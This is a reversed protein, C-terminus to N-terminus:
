FYKVGQLWIRNSADADATAQERGIKWACDLRLAFDPTRTWLLGVGAGTLSRRNSDGAGAWPTHNIIVSGYDYFGTLYVNDQPTSMGPLRWRLEGTLKCGEDGAAEGQPFARVGDAGGLFLKESSDLNKDALQGSFTFHFNLNEAVYQQRQYTLLTKFFHGATAATANDNAATAADLIRLRGRSHTLSFANSGGGLWNDAFSGALGLNVLRSKKPSYSDTATVDDRLRKDDYGLTGYLSFVRRRILPYTLDYSTVKAQGAAGLSAFTDGLTYNVRSHKVSFRAGDDGALLSYGLNYNNLRNHSSILGGLSLDNGDGGINGATVQFGVRNRSTYRNGWNDAYVAGRVRDADSVDLILDATGNTEGPSLTAKISIGNLDSLLLLARELPERTIVSGPATTHLMARLRDHNFRGNGTIKMQGYKGPIVAIEVVGDKIDQAPIYAFAVIYGQLRLYQTLKGALANLEGLTLERGSEGKILNLLEDAPLPSEGSIRFGRVPIKQQDGTQAPPQGGEITIEPSKVLPPQVAAPPKAGELIAGATPPAAHASLVACAALAISVAFTIYKKERNALKDIM